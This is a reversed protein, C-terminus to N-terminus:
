VFPRLANRLEVAEAKVDAADGSKLALDVLDSAQDLLDDWTKPSVGFPVPGGDVQLFVANLRLTTRDNPHLAVDDAAVFLRAMPSEDGVDPVSVEDDAEDDSVGGALRDEVADLVGDITAEDSAAVVLLGGEWRFPRDSEILRETLLARARNDWDALDYEVEPGRERRPGERAEETGDQLGHAREIEELVADVADEHREHIVLDSGRWGHSVGAAALAEAVEAHIAIPWAGLDYEVQEEEPLQLPDIDDRPDPATEVGEIPEGADDDKRRSYTAM